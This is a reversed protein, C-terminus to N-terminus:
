LKTFYHWENIELTMPYMIIQAMRVFMNWGRLKNKNFPFAPNGVFSTDRPFMKGIGM